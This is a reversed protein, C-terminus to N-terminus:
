QLVFNYTIVGSVKVAQDGLRTPSFRALYAAKESVQKFLPHGGLAHASIVRGTEDILVQINVKGQLHLTKAMEPYPPPPLSIAESTIPGKSIVPPKPKPVPLPPPTEIAVHNPTATNSGNGAESGSGGPSGPDVDRGTFRVVRATPMPLGPNPTTSVKDPAATPNDVRAIPAIREFDTQKGNSSNKSPTTFKPTAAAPRATAPLDVLSMMTVLELDQNEMRADYAYISIVGTIIFLLAYSATTFLFFSGRRKFESRHSSSEILNNFM